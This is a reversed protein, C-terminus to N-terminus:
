GPNKEMWEKQDDKTPFEIQSPTSINVKILGQIQSAEFERFSEAILYFFWSIPIFIGNLDMLHISKTGNKPTKSGIENFDDFLATAITRTLM